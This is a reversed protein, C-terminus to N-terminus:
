KHASYNINKTFRKTSVGRMTTTFINIRDRLYKQFNKIDDYDRIYKCEILLYRWSKKDREGYQIIIITSGHKLKHRLCRDAM